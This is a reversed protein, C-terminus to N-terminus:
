ARTTLRTSRRTRENGAAGNEKDASLDAVKAKAVRKIRTAKEANEEKLQNEANLKGLASGMDVAEQQYGNRQAWRQRDLVSNPDNADLVPANYDRLNQAFMMGQGMDEQNFAGTLGGLLGQLNQAQNSGAM